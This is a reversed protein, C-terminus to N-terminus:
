LASRRRARRVVWTFALAFGIVAPIVLPGSDVYTAGIGGAGMGRASWWEWLMPLLLVVALWVVVALFAAVFGLVTAKLYTM